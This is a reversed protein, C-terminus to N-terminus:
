NTVVTINNSIKLNLQKLMINRKKLCKFEKKSFTQKEDEKGSFTKYSNTRDLPILLCKQFNSM